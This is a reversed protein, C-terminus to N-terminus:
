LINYMSISVDTYVEFNPQGNTFHDKFDGHLLFESYYSMLNFKSQDDDFVRIWKQHDATSDDTQFEILSGKKEELGEVISVYEQGQKIRVLDRTDLDSPLEELKASLTIEEDNVLKNEHVRWVAGKFNFYSLITM